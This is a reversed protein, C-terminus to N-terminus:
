DSIYINMVITLVWYFDGLFLIDIGCHKFGNFISNVIFTSMRLNVTSHFENLCGFIRRSFLNPEYRIFLFPLSSSSIALYYWLSYM